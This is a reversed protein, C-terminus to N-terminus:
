ESDETSNEEDTEEAANHKKKIIIVSSSIAAASCIVVSVANQPLNVGTNPNNGKTGEDSDGAGAVLLIGYKNTTGTLPFTVYGDMAVLEDIIELIDNNDDLTCLKLVKGNYEAPVPVKLTAAFGFELQKGFVICLITDGNENKEEVLKTDLDLLDKKSENDKSIEWFLENDNTPIIINGSDNPKDKGDDTDPDKEPETTVTGGGSIGGSTNGGINNNELITVSAVGKVVFGDPMTVTFYSYHVGVNFFGQNNGYEYSNPQYEFRISAYAPISITASHYNGDYYGKYNQVSVQPYYITFPVTCESTYFEDNYTIKLEYSGARMPLGNSFSNETGNLRYSYKLKAADLGAPLLSIGLADPEVAAGTYLVSNNAVSIEAEGKIVEVDITGTVENYNVNDAPTFKFQVDELMALDTPTATPVSWTFSGPINHRTGNTDTFVASGKIVSDSLQSGFPLPTCSVNELSPTAKSITLSFSNNVDNYSENEVKYWVTQNTVVDKFERASYTGTQTDSFTITTGSPLTVGTRLPIEVPLGANYTLNISSDYIPINYSAKNITLTTTKETDQYNQLGKIRAYVTYNGAATPITSQETETGNLKYTIKLTNNLLTDDPKTSNGLEIGSAAATIEPSSDGYNITYSASNFTITPTAQTIKIHAAKLYYNFGNVAVFNSNTIKVYVTKNGANIESPNDGTYTGEVSNAYTITSNIPASVAVSHATGDYVGNFDTITVNDDFSEPYVYLRLQSTSQITYNQTDISNTFSIIPNVRYEGVEIDSPIGTVYDVSNNYPRYEYTFSYSPNEGDVFGTVKPATITVTGHRVSQFGDEFSITLGKKLIHVQTQGQYYSAGDEGCYNPNEVRFYVTAGDVPTANKFVFSEKLAYSGNAVLSYTITSGDPASITPLQTLGNYTFEYKNLYSIENTWRSKTVTVTDNGDSYASNYNSSLETPTVRVNYKGVTSPLGNIWESTGATKYQISYGGTYSESNVLNVSAKSIVYAQLKNLDNYAISYNDEINLNIAPTAKNITVNASYVMPNGGYYDPNTVRCYITAPTTIVNAIRSGLVSAGLAAFTPYYSTGDISYEVTSGDPVDSVTINHPKGDYTYSADTATIGYSAYGITLTLTNSTEVSNYNTANTGSPTFIAKVDYIGRATPLGDVYANETGNLRYKYTIDTAATYNDTGKLTLTPVATIEAPSGTYKLEETTTTFKFVPDIKEITFTISDAPAFTTYGDKEAKYHVSYEGANKIDSPLATSYENIGYKYSITTNAISCTILNTPVVGSYPITLETEDTVPLVTENNFKFTADDFSGVGVEVDIYFIAANYEDTQPATVRVRTKGKNLASIDTGDLHAIGYETTGIMLSDALCEFKLFDVTGGNYLAAVSVTDASGNVLKITNSSYNTTISPNTRSPLTPTAPIVISSTENLASNATFTGTTGTELSYNATQYTQTLPSATFDTISVPKTVTVATETFVPYSTLGDNRWITSGLYEVAEDLTAKNALVGSADYCDFTGGNVFFVSNLTNGDQAGAVEITAATTESTEEPVTTEESSAATTTIEESATTSEETVSTEAPVTTTEESSSATVEEATTEEPPTLLLTTPVNEIPTIDNTFGVNQLSIDSAAATAIPSSTGTYILNKLTVPKGNSVIGIFQGDITYGNCDLTFENNCDPASTPTISAGLIYSGGNTVATELASADTIPTLTQTGTTIIIPECYLKKLTPIATETVGNVTKSVSSTWNENAPFTTSALNDATVNAWCDTISATGSAVLAATKSFCNTVTLNNTLTAVLGGAGYSACRNIASSASAETGTYSGVIAKDTYNVVNEIKTDAATEVLAGTSESKGTGKLVLGDIKAGSLTSEFVAPAGNLTITHSNGYFTGKFNRPATYAGTLELDATLIYIKDSNEPIAKLKDVTDIYSVTGTFVNGDADTLVSIFNIEDALATPLPYFSEYAGNELAERAKYSWNDAGFLDNSVASTLQATTKGNGSSTNSLYYSHDVSPSGSKVFTDLNNLSLSFNIAATGNSTGIFSGGSTVTGQNICNTITVAASSYGIFGGAHSSDASCNVFGNNISNEITIAASSGARAIFGGGGALGTSAITASNICNKIAINLGNNANAILGSSYDGSVTGKITCNDITVSGQLEEILTASGVSDAIINLNIFTAGAVYKFLVCNTTITHGNGNFTGRFFNSTGTATAATSSVSLDCNLYIIKDAFNKNTKSNTTNVFAEYDNLSNIEFITQTAYNDAWGVTAAAFATFIDKLPPIESATFFLTLTLFVSLLKQLTKKKKM